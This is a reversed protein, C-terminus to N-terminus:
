FIAQLFRSDSCQQDDNSIDVKKMLWIPLVYNEKNDQIKVGPNWKELM